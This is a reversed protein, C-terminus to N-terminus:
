VKKYSEYNKMVKEVYNRTEKPMKNIEGVTDVGLKNMRGIGGNYAALALKKNGDFSDLLQRLYRTGGDINELVSFPNDVGLSDATKPMLQMLGQAGAHSVADPKFGSEQKIVAKILDDDVRYKQSVDDIVDMISRSVSNVGLKKEPNSSTETKEFSTDETKIVYSDKTNQSEGSNMMSQLLLEFMMSSQGTSGSSTFLNQMLYVQMLKSM